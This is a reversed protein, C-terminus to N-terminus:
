RPRHIQRRMLLRLRPLRLLRMRATSFRTTTTLVVESQATTRKGRGKGLISRGSHGQKPDDKIVLKGPFLAAFAKLPSTLGNPAVELQFNSGTRRPYNTLWIEIRRIFTIQPDLKDLPLIDHMMENIRAFVAPYTPHDVRRYVGMHLMAVGQSQVVDKVHTERAPFVDADHEKDLRQLEEVIHPELRVDEVRVAQYLSTDSCTLYATSQSASPNSSDM